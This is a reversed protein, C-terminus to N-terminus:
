VSHPMKAKTLLAFYEDELRKREEMNGNKRAELLKGTILKQKKHLQEHNATKCNQRIERVSITESWNGLGNEECYLQLIRAKAKDEDSLVLSDLTISSSPSVNSLASYM